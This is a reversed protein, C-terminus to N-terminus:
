SDDSIDSSSVDFVEGPERESSDGRSVAVAGGPHTYKQPTPTVVYPQQLPPYGGQMSHHFHSMFHQNPMPPPVATHNMSSDFHSAGDQSKQYATGSGGENGLGPQYPGPIYGGLSNGAAGVNGPESVSPAHVNGSKKNGSKKSHTNKPPPQEHSSQVGGVKATKPRKAPKDHEAYMDESVKRKGNSKQSSGSAYNQLSYPSTYGLPPPEGRFRIFEIAGQEVATCIVAVRADAKNRYENPATWTRIQDPAPDNALQLTM